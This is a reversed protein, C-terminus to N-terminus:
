TPGAVFRFNYAEPMRVIPSNASVETSYRMPFNPLIPATRCENAFPYSLEGTRRVSWIEVILDTPLLAVVGRSKTFLSSTKRIRLEDRVEMLIKGLLNQGTWKSPTSRAPDDIAIDIGWKMDRPSAEALTKNGTSLLEELLNDNQAFKARVGRKVIAYCTKDWIKANFEPFKTRGLKKITAPDKSAMIQKALDYQRFMMVKSFMMFQEVSSFVRNCYYFDAQFWNSFCGYDGDEHYFCIIGKDLDTM